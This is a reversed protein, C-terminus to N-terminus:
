ILLIQCDAFGKLAQLALNIVIVNPIWSWDQISIAKSPFGTTQFTTPHNLHFLSIFEPFYIQILTAGRELTGWCLTQQFEFHYESLLYFKIIFVKWKALFLSFEFSLQFSFLPKHQKQQLSCVSCHNSYQCGVDTVNCNLSYMAICRAAAGQLM